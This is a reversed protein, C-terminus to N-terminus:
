MTNLLPGPNKFKSNQPMLRTLPHSRGQQLKKQPQKKQLETRFNSQPDNTMRNINSHLQIQPLSGKKSIKSVKTTPCTMEINNNHNLVKNTHIQNDYSTQSKSKKFPFETRIERSPFSVNQQNEFENFTSSRPRGNRNFNPSSPTSQSFKPESDISKKDSNEISVSSNGKTKEEIEKTIRRVVGLSDKTPPIKRNSCSRKTHSVQKQISILSRNEVSTSRVFASNTSSITSLEIQNDATEMPISSEILSKTKSIPISEMLSNMMVRTSCLVENVAEVVSPMSKSHVINTNIDNAETQDSLSSCLRAPPLKTTLSPLPIWKPTTNSYLSTSRKHTKSKVEQSRELLQSEIVSDSNRKDFMSLSLSTLISDYSSTRKLNNEEIKQKTNYVTGNPVVKTDSKTELESSQEKM